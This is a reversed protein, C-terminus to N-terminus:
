GELRFMKLTDPDKDTAGVDAFFFLCLGGANTPTYMRATGWVKTESSALNNVYPLEVNGNVM